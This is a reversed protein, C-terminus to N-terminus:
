CGEKEGTLDLRLTLGDAIKSRLGESKTQIIGSVKGTRWNAFPVCHCLEAETIGYIEEFKMALSRNGQSVGLCM